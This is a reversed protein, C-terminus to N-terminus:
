VKIKHIWQMHNRLQDLDRIYGDCIECIVFASKGNGNPSQGPKLNAMSGPKQGGGITMGSSVGQSSPQRPLPTISISPQQSNKM